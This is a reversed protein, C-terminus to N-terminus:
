QQHSNNEGEFIKAQNSSPNPTINIARHTLPNLSHRFQSKQSTQSKHSLTKKNRMFGMCGLFGLASKFSNTFKQKVSDRRTCVQVRM